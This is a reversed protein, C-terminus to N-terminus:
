LYDKPDVDPIRRKSNLAALLAIIHKCRYEVNYTENVRYNPCLCTHKQFKNNRLLTVQYVVQHDSQSRVLFHSNTTDDKVHMIPYPMKLIEGARLMRGDLGTAKSKTMKQDKNKSLNNGESTSCTIM